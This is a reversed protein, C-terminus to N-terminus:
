NNSRRERRNATVVCILLGSGLKIDRESVNLNTAPSVILSGQSTALAPSYFCGFLSKKQPFAQFLNIVSVSIFM